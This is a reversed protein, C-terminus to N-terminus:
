LEKRSFLIFSLILFFGTYGFCYLLSWALFSGSTFGPSLFYDRFNFLQYNPVVFLVIQVLLKPVGVIIKNMMFLMETGFHGMIWFAATFILASVSSTAFLSFFLALASTVVVKAASMLVLVPYVHWFSWGQTFISFWRWDSIIILIHLVAMVFMMFIVAGLLGLFRGLVFLPRSLPRSLLLYLTKTEMDQSIINVAGFLAALLGFLELTFLGLDFVVRTKYGPALAGLLLSAFLVFVGFFLIVLYLRSRVQEM